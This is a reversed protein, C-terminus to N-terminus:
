IENAFEPTTIQEELQAELEVFYRDLDKRGYLPGLFSMIPTRLHPVDPHPRYLV